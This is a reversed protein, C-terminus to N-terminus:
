LRHVLCAWRLARGAPRGAGRVGDAAAGHAGGATCVPRSAVKSLPRSRIHFALTIAVSAFSTNLSLKHKQVENSGLCAGTCVSCRGKFLKFHM